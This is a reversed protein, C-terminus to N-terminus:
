MQESYVQHQQMCFLVSASTLKNGRMRVLLNHHINIYIAKTIIPGTYWSHEIMRFM